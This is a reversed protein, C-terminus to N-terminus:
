IGSFTPLKELNVTDNRKSLCIPSDSSSPFHRFDRSFEAYVHINIINAPWWRIWVNAGDDSTTISEHNLKQSPKSAIGPRTVNSTVHMNVNTVINVPASMGGTAYTFTLSFCCLISFWHVSMILLLAALIFTIILGIKTNGEQTSPAQNISPRSCPRRRQPERQTQRQWLARRAIDAASRIHLVLFALLAASAVSCSPSPVLESLQLTRHYSCSTVFPSGAFSLALALRVPSCLNSVYISRHIIQRYFLLIYVLKCCPLPPPGLGIDRRWDIRETEHVSLSVPTSRIMHRSISM